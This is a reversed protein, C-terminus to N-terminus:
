TLILRKPTKLENIKFVKGNDEDSRISRMAEICDKQKRFVDNLTCIYMEQVRKKKLTVFNNKCLPCLKGEIRDM